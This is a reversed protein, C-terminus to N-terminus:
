TADPHSTRSANGPVPLDPEMTSLATEFARLARLPYDAFAFDCARAYEDVGHLELVKLAAALVARAFGDRHVEAEFIISGKNAVQRAGAEPFTRVQLPVLKSRPSWCEEAGVLIRWERPEGDPSVFTFSAGTAMPLAARILDGIADTCYGFEAIEVHSTGVTLTLSARGHKQMKYNMSVPDIM